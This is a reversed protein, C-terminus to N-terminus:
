FTTRLPSFYNVGGFMDTQIHAPCITHRSEVLHISRYSPHLLNDQEDKLPIGFHKDLNFKEDNPNFMTFVYDADESLNGSDKIDDATTFLYEGAERKRNPDALNRNSHAIIVFTFGYLNRMEVVYESTKDINEKMSFGRERPIKRVHDIIIIFRSKPNTPKYGIVKHKTVETGNEIVTFNEYVEQGNRQAVNRILDNRIGTPNVKEEIFKIKGSKIQKGTGDYEGFLPIIRDQYVQLLKLKHDETLLIVKGNEDVKKGQLYESNMEYRKGEYMFDFIGHDKYMFHAAFKFEKQIRDVEFSYYIWKLPYPEVGNNEETFKLWEMYPSIVFSYDVLTSKGVKPASAVVYVSKQHIGGTVKNLGPIGMDLGKSEGRQGKEIAEILNM